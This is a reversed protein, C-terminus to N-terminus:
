GFTARSWVIMLARPQLRVAGILASGCSLRLNRRHAEGHVGVRVVTVHAPVRPQKRRLEGIECRDGRSLSHEVDSTARACQCGLQDFSKTRGRYRCDIWRLKKDRRRLLPMRADVHASCGGLLQRELVRHEVRGQRLEDDKEHLVGCHPHLLHHTHSPLATDHRRADPVVSAASTRDAHEPMCRALEVGLKHVLGVECANALAM